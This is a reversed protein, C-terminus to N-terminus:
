PLDTPQALRKLWGLTDFDGDFSALHKIGGRRCALAILADNFNLEGATQEVLAVIEDYLHPVEPYLWSISRTPFEARVREFLTKLDIVRRKEHVRRALTSVAEALVCDFAVIQAGRALMVAYVQSAPIHWVDKEDLLGIVFSTDLGILSPM